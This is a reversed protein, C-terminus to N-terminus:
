GYITNWPKIIRPQMLTIPKEGFYGLSTKLKVQFMNKAVNWNIKAADTINRRFCVILEGSDM